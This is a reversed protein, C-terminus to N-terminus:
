LKLSTYVPYHDSPYMGEFKSVIRKTSIVKLNKSIFIHDIPLHHFRLSGITGRLTTGFSDDIVDTFPAQIIKYAHSLSNCNFDGTLITHTGKQTDQILQSLAQAQFNRVISFNSDLHTNYVSLIQKTTNDKLYVCTVIRPFQSLPHKSGKVLPSNSLWFTRDDLSEFRDKKFLICCSENSIKSHRAEGVISYTKLLEDLYPIMDKTLEQVGIIDPLYTQIMKNISKIRKQFSPNGPLHLGSTLLNLSM